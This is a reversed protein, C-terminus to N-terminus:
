TMVCPLSPPPLLCQLRWPVASQVPGLVDDSPCIVLHDCTLHSAERARGRGKCQGRCRRSSAKCMARPCMLSAPPCRGRGWARRPRRMGRPRQTGKRSGSGARRAWGWRGGCAGWSGARARAPAQQQRSAQQGRGRGQLARRRMRPHRQPRARPRGQKLKLKDRARRRSEGRCCPARSSCWSWTFRPPHTLPPPLTLRHPHPASPGPSPLPPRPAAARQHARQHPQRTALRPCHPERSVRRHM